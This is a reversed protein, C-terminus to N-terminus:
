MIKACLKKNSKQFSVKGSFIKQITNLLNIIGTSIPTVLALNIIKSIALSKFVNTKGELTFHRMRRVKLVNEIKSIHTTFNNEQHLTKYLHFSLWSNETKNMLNICKSGCLAVYIGKLNGIGAIGFKSKNPKLRFIASFIDLIKVLEIVSNKNWIFFTTDACSTYLFDRGFINFSQIEILRLWWFLLKWFLFLFIRLHLIEQRKQLQRAM